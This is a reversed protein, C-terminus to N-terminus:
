QCYLLPFTAVDSAFEVVFDPLGQGAQAERKRRDFLSWHQRKPSSEISRAGQHIIEDRAYPM